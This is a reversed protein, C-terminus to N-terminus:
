PQAAPVDVAPGTRNQRFGWWLMRVGDSEATQGVWERLGRWDGTEVHGRCRACVYMRDGSHWDLPMAVMEFPAFPYYAVVQDDACFDCMLVTDALGSRYVRPPLDQAAREAADDIDQIARIAIRRLHPADSLGDLLATVAAQDGRRRAAAVALMVDHLRAAPSRENPPM